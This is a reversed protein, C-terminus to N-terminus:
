LVEAWAQLGKARLSRVITAASEDSEFAALIRHQEGRNIFIVEWKDKKTCM